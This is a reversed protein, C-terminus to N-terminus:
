IVAPISPSHLYVLPVCCISLSRHGPLVVAWILMYICGEEYYLYAGLKLVHLWFLAKPSCMSFTCLAICFVFGCGCESLGYFPLDLTGQYVSLKSPQQGSNCWMLAQVPFCELKNGDPINATLLKPNARLKLLKSIVLMMSSFVQLNSPMESSMKLLNDFYWFFGFFISPKEQKPEERTPTIKSFWQGDNQSIVFTVSLCHM